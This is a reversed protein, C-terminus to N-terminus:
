DREILKLALEMGDITWVNTLQNFIVRAILVKEKGNSYTIKIKCMHNHTKEFDIVEYDVISVEDSNPKRRKYWDRQMLEFSHAM